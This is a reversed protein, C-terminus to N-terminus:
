GRIGPDSFIRTYVGMVWGYQGNVLRVQWWGAASGVIQLVNNLQVEGIVPHHMGPGSRVNLRPTTVVLRDATPVARYTGAPLPAPPPCAPVYAPGGAAPYANARAVTAGVLLGLGIAGLIGVIVAGDQHYHHSHRHYPRYYHRPRAAAVTTGAVFFVVTLLLIAKRM